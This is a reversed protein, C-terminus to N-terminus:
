IDPSWYSTYLLREVYTSTHTYQDRLVYAYYYYYYQEMYEVYCEM